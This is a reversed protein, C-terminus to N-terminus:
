DGLACVGPGYDQNALEEYIAFARKWDCRVGVGYEYCRGLALAAELHGADAAEQYCAVAQAPDKPIGDGTELARGLTYLADPSIGHAAQPPNQTHFLESQMVYTRGEFNM